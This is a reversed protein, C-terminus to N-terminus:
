CCTRGSTGVFIGARRPQGLDVPPTLARVINRFVWGFAVVMALLVVTAITLRRKQVGPPLVGLMEQNAKKVSKTLLDQLVKLRAEDDQPLLGDLALEEAKQIPETMVDYAMTSDRAYPEPKGTEIAIDFTEAWGRPALRVIEDYGFRKLYKPNVFRGLGGEVLIKMKIRVADESDYFRMYEWAADRIAPHKIESFLGMMRSNM